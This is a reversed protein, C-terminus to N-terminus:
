ASSGGLRVVRIRLSRRMEGTWVLIPRRGMGAKKKRRAYAKSLPEMATGESVDAGAGHLGDRINRLVQHRAHQAALRLAPILTRVMGKVIQDVGAAISARIRAVIETTVFGPDRWPIKTRPESSTHYRWLRVNREGQVFVEAVQNRADILARARARLDSPSPPAGLTVPLGGLFLRPVTTTATVKM